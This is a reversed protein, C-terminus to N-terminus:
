LPQNPVVAKSIGWAWYCVFAVSALLPIFGWVPRLPSSLLPTFSFLADYAAHIAVVAAISGSYVYILGFLVSALFLQSFVWATPQQVGIHWATFLASTLLVAKLVGYKQVLLNQVIGRFLFEEKVGVPVSAVAFLLAVYPSLYFRGVIVPITFFLLLGIVLSSSRLVSPKPIRSRILPRFLWWCVGATAIRFATRIAEVEISSWSYYHLLARTVAMSLLEAVVVIAIRHATTM